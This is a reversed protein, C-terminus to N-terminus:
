AGDRTSGSTSGAPTPSWTAQLPIHTHLTGLLRYPEVLVLSQPMICGVGGFAVIWTFWTSSSHLITAVCLCCSGAGRVQGATHSRMPWWMPSLGTVRWSHPPSSLSAPTRWAEMRSPRRCCCCTTAVGYTHGLLRRLQLPPRAYPATLLCCFRIDCMSTDLDACAPLCPKSNSSCCPM